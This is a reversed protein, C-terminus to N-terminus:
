AYGYGSREVYYHLIKKGPCCHLAVEPAIARLALALSRSAVGEGGDSLGREDLLDELVGVVRFGAVVELAM